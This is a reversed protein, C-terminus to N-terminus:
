EELRLERFERAFLFKHKLARVLKQPKAVVLAICLRHYEQADFIAFVQKLARVLKQPKAVPDEGSRVISRL